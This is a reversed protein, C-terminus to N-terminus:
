KSKKIKRKKIDEETIVARNLFVRISRDYKKYFDNLLERNKPTDNEAPLHFVPGSIIEQNIWFIKSIGTEKILKKLEDIARNFLEVDIVYTDNGYQIPILANSISVTSKFVVHQQNKTSKIGIYFPPTQEDLNSFLQARIEQKEKDNEGEMNKGQIHKHRNQAILLYGLYNQADSKVSWDCYECIFDGKELFAYDNNSAPKFVDTLKVGREHVKGCASCIKAEIMQPYDPKPLVEKVANYAFETPYIYDQEKLSIYNRNNEVPEYEILSTPPMYCPVKDKKDYYPPYANYFMVRDSELNWNRCPLPRSAQGKIIFSKDEDTEEVKIKDILGFGVSNKKGIGKLNKLLDEIIEKDGWVYFYIEKINLAEFGFRYLKYEGSGDNDQIKGTYKLMHERDKTKVLMANSPSVTAEKGVYWISGSLAGNKVQIFKSIEPIFDETRIFDNGIKGLKRLKAFYLAILISDITTYRPLIVPSSLGVTIKLNHM